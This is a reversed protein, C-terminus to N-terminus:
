NARLWALVALVRRHQDRSEPLDLKILIHGIHREITKPSLGLRTAIRANSNGEAMMALVEQERLSLQDLVARTRRRGILRAVITPDVVCENATLRRLADILVEIHSVREKLLYGLGGTPEGLLRMAYRTDLYHSLVLVGVDPHRRRIALAAKIGEDTHTPPMKIDVIAIDPRDLAVAKLLAPEDGATGVVQLGAAALLQTLGDRLLVEDDCIVVRM